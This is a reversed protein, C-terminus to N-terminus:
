PCPDTGGDSGCSLQPGSLAQGQRLDCVLDSFSAPYLESQLERLWSHRRAEPQSWKYGPARELPQKVLSGVKVKLHSDVRGQGVDRDCAWITNISCPLPSGAPFGRAWQCLRLPGAASDAGKEAPWLCSCPFTATGAIELGGLVQSQVPTRGGCM